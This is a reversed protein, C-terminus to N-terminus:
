QAQSVKQWRGGNICSIGEKQLQARVGAARAGSRCCLIIPQEQKKLKALQSNIKQVPINIAGKAHGDKFETPTRVDVIMAGSTLLEKIQSSKKVGGFIMKFLKM